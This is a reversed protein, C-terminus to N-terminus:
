SKVYDPSKGLMWALFTIATTAVLVAYGGFAAKYGCVDQLPTDPLAAAWAAFALPAVFMAFVPLEFKPQPDMLRRKGVYGGLAIFSALSVFIWFGIWRPTFDNACVPIRKKPKVPDFLAVYAVYLTIAETPIWMVLQNIINTPVEGPRRTRRRARGGRRRRRREQLAAQDLSQELLKSDAMGMISV